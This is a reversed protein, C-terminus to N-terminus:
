EQARRIVTLGSNLQAACANVNKKRRLRRAKRYHTKARSIASPAIDRTRGTRMEINLASFGSDNCKVGRALNKTKEKQAAHAVKLTKLGASIQRSCQKLKNQSLLKKSILYRSQVSRILKHNLKAKRGKRLASFLIHLGKQDCRSSRVIEGSGRLRLDSLANRLLGECEATRARMRWRRARKYARQAEIIQVVPTDSNQAKKIEDALVAFGNNECYIPTAKQAQAPVLFLSFGHVLCFLIFLFKLSNNM